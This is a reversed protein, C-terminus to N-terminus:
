NFGKVLDSSLQSIMNDISISSEKELSIMESVQNLAMKIEEIYQVMEDEDKNVNFKSSSSIFKPLTKSLMKSASANKFEQDKSTEMRFNNQTSSM